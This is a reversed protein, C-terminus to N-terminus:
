NQVLADPIFSSKSYLYIPKNYGHVTAYAYKFRVNVLPRRRPKSKRKGLIVQTGPNYPYADAEDLTESVKLFSTDLTDGNMTLMERILDKGEALDRARLLFNYGRARDLYYILKRGKKFIRASGTGFNAKIKTGISRLEAETITSSTEGILRFSVEMEVPKYGTEADESDEVFFLTIKPRYVVSTDVDDLLSGAVIPFQDRTYTTGHLFLQMRGMTLMLSDDERHLCAKLLSQRPATLDLNSESSSVDRFYERVLKNWIRKNVDQFQETPTFNDPEPM